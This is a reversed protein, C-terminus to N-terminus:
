KIHRTDDAILSSFAGSFVSYLIKGAVLCGVFNLCWCLIREGGILTQRVITSRPPFIRLLAVFAAALVPDLFVAM